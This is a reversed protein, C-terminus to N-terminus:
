SRSIGNQNIFNVISRQTGNALTRGGGHVPLPCERGDPSVLHVGHRGRGDEISFGLSRAYRQIEKPKMPKDPVLDVGKKLAQKEQARKEEEARQQALFENILIKSDLPVEIMYGM